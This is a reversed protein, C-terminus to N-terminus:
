GPGRGRAFAFALLGASLLLAIFSLGVYLWVNAFDLSLTANITLQLFVLQAGNILMLAVILWRMTAHPLRPERGLM